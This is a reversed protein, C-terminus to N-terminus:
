PLTTPNYVFVSVDPKANSVMRVCVAAAKHGFVSRDHRFMDPTWEIRPFVNMVDIGNLIVVSDFVKANNRVFGVLPYNHARM